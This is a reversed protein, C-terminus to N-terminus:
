RKQPRKGSSFSCQASESIFGPATMLQALLCCQRQTDKINFFLRELRIYDSSTTTQTRLCHLLIGTNNICHLFLASLHLKKRCLFFILVWKRDVAPAHPCRLVAYGYFNACGVKSDKFREFRQILEQLQQAMFKKEFCCDWLSCQNETGAEVWM